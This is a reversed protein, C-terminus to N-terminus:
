PHLGVGKFELKQNLEDYLNIIIKNPRNLGVIRYMEVKVDVSTEIPNIQIFSVMIHYKREQLFLEKHDDDVHKVIIRNKKAYDIVANKAKTYNTKYYRSRLDSNVHLEQTEAINSMFTSFSM